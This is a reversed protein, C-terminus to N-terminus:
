CYMAAGQCEQRILGSTEEQVHKYNRTWKSKFEVSLNASPQTINYTISMDQVAPRLGHRKEMDSLAGCLLKLLNIHFVLIASTDFIIGPSHQCSLVTLILLVTFNCFYFQFSRDYNSKATSQKLWGPENFMREKTLVANSKM